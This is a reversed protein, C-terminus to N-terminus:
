APALFRVPHRSCFAKPLTAKTAGVHSVMGAVKRTKSWPATKYGMNGKNEVSKERKSIGREQMVGGKTEMQEIEEIKRTALLKLENRFETIMGHSRLDWICIFSDLCCEKGALDEMTKLEMDVVCFEIESFHIDLISPVKNSKVSEFLAMPWRTM